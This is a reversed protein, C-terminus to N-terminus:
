RGPRRSEGLVYVRAGEPRVSPEAGAAEAGAAEAGAAEEPAADPEGAVGTDGGTNTGNAPREADPGYPPSDMVPWGRSYLSKATDPWGRLGRSSRGPGDPGGRGDGSDEAGPWNDVDYVDGAGPPGAADGPLAWGGHEAPGAPQATATRAAGLWTREPDDAGTGDAEEAPEGPVGATGATGPEQGTAASPTGTPRAPRSRGAAAAAARFLWVVSAGSVLAIAAFAALMVTASLMGHM